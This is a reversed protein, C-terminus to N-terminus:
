NSRYYADAVIHTHICSWVWDWCLRLLQGISTKNLEQIHDNAYQIGGADGNEENVFAIARITRRPRLGLQKLLRVAHWSALVGGGDDVAGEAIDWSDAHGGIVVIEDPKESGELEIIVNGFSTRPPLLVAESYLSVVPAQGRMYMRELQWPFDTSDNRLYPM